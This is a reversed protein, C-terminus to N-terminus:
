VARVRGLRGRDGGGTAGGSGALLSALTARQEASLEIQGALDLSSPVAEPQAGTLWGYWSQEQKAAPKAAKHAVEEAQLQVQAFARFQVIDDVALEDRELRTLEADEGESLPSLWPKGQARKYLDMYMLRSARRDEIFGAVLRWGRLRRQEQVVCEIAYVWRARPRSPLAHQGAGFVANVVGTEDSGLVGNMYELLRAADRLQQESLRVAVASLAVEVSIQPRNDQLAMTAARVSVRAECTVPQILYYRDVGIGAGLSRTASKAGPRGADSPSSVMSRLWAATETTSKSQDYMVVCNCNHYLALKRVELKKLQLNADVSFAANWDKDATTASLEQLSPRTTFAHANPSHIPAPCARPHAHAGCSM